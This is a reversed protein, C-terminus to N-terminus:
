LDESLGNVVSKLLSVTKELALIRQANKMAERRARADIM